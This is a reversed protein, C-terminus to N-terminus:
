AAPRSCVGAGLPSVKLAFPPVVNPAFQCSLAKFTLNASSAHVATKGLDPKYITGNPDRLTIDPMDGAGIPKDSVNKLSYNVTVLIGGAAAQEHVYGGTRFGALPDDATSSLPADVSTVTVEVGDVTIPQGIAAPSNAADASRSSSTSSSGSGCGYTTAVMLAAAVAISFRRGAEAASSVLPNAQIPNVPLQELTSTATNPRFTWIRSVPAALAARKTM